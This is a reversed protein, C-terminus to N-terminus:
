PGTGSSAGGGPATLRMRGTETALEARTAPARVWVLLADVLRSPLVDVAHAPVDLTCAKTRRATLIRPRRRSSWSAADPRGVIRILVERSTPVIAINHVDDWALRGETDWGRVTVHDPTLVLRPAWAVGVFGDPVAFGALVAVALPIPWGPNGDARLSVAVYLLLLALLGSTLLAITRRRREWPVVLAGCGDVTTAIVSRGDTPTRHLYTWHFGLSGLASWSLGVAALLLSTGTSWPQEQGPLLLAGVSVALLGLGLVGNGVVVFWLLGRNM